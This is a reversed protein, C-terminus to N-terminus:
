ASRAIEDLFVEELIPLAKGIYRSAAPRSDFMLSIRLIATSPGDSCAMKIELSFKEEVPTIEVSIQNGKM